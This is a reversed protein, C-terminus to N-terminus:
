VLLDPPASLHRSAEDGAGCWRAFLWVPMSWMVWGYGPGVFRHQIVQGDWDEVDLGAQWAEQGRGSVIRVDAGMGKWQAIAKKLIDPAEPKVAIGMWVLYVRAGGVDLLADILTSVDQWTLKCDDMLLHDALVLLSPRPREQGRFLALDARLKECNGPRLALERTLEPPRVVMSVEDVQAARCVRFFTAASVRAFGGWAVRLLGSVAARAEALVAALGDQGM